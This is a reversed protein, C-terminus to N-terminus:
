MRQELRSDSELNPYPNAFTARQYPSAHFQKWAEALNFSGILSKLTESPFFPGCIQNSLDGGTTETLLIAVVAALWGLESKVELVLPETTAPSVYFIEDPRSRNQAYLKTWERSSVPRSDGDTDCNADGWVFALVLRFDPRPGAPRVYFRIMETM